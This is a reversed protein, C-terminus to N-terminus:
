EFVKTCKYWGVLTPKHYPRYYPSNGSVVLQGRCDLLDYGIEDNTLVM